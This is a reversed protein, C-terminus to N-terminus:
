DLRPKTKYRKNFHRTDAEDFDVEESFKFDDMYWFVRNGNCDCLEFVEHLKEPVDVYNRIARRIQACWEDSHM